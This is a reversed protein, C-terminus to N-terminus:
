NSDYLTGGEPNKSIKPHGKYRLACSSGIDTTLNQVATIECKGQGKMSISAETAQLSFASIRNDGDSSFMAIRATGKYVDLSSNGVSKYFFKDVNIDDIAVNSNGSIDVKFDTRNITGHVEANAWFSLYLSSLESVTIEAVVDKSDMSVHGDLDSAIFLINNEVKTKIHALINSLGRLEISPKVGKKVTISMKLPLEAQITNFSTVAPTVISTPGEQKVV